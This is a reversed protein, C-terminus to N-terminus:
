PTLEITVERSRLADLLLRRRAVLEDSSPRGGESWLSRLFDLDEWIPGRPRPDSDYRPTIWWHLHPVGNGLSELNLKRPRFADNIAAAVEAMERLHVDRVGPDLDFVERVCYKSAFFSGGEFYQNPSLRVYGTQLRAVFWRDGGEDSAANERCIPCSTMLVTNGDGV